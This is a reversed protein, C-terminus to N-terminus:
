EQREQKKATRSEKKRPEDGLPVDHPEATSHTIKRGDQYVITIHDDTMRWAIPVAPTIGGDLSDIVAFQLVPLPITM